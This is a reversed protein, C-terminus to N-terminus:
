RPTPLLLVLPLLLPLKCTLIRLIRHNLRMHLPFSGGFFNSVFWMIRYALMLQFCTSHHTIVVMLFFYPTSCYVGPMHSHQVADNVSEGGKVVGVGRWMHIRVFSIMFVFRLAANAAASAISPHVTSLFTVLSMVPNAADAFPLVPNPLIVSAVLCFSM